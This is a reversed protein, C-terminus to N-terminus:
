APASRRAQFTPPLSLFRMWELRKAALDLGANAPSTSPLRASAIGRLPLGHRRYLDAAAAGNFGIRAIRPHREFFAAFDNAQVSDRAIASDLSGPRRAAACVDWVAIKARVLAAVREAYPADAGFGLLSALIPWFANRPHAYYQGAALSAQGPLSGLILVTADPAAIPPFGRDPEPPPSSPTPSRSARPM